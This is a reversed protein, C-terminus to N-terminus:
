RGSRVEPSRAFPIDDLVRMDVRRTKGVFPGSRGRDPGHGLRSGDTRSPLVMGHLGSKM